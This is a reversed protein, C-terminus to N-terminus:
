ELPSVDEFDDASSSSDLIASSAQCTEGCGALDERQERQKKQNIFFDHV